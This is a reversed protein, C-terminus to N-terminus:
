IFSKIQIALVIEAGLQSQEFTKKQLGSYSIAM